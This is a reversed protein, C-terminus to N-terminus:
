LAIMYQINNGMTIKYQDEVIDSVLLVAGLIELESHAILNKSEPKNEHGPM